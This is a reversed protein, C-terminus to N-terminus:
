RRTPLVVFEIDNGLDCHLSDEDGKAEFRCGAEDAATVQKGRTAFTLVV